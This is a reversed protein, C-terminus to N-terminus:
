CASSPRLGSITQGLAAVQASLRQETAARENHLRHEGATREAHLRREVAAAESQLRLEVDHLHQVLVTAESQLRQEMDHLHQVLAAAQQEIQDRIEAHHSAQREQLSQLAALAGVAFDSKGVATRVRWEFRYLFPLALPRALRLGRRGVDQVLRSFRTGAPAAAVVPEAVPPPVDAPATALSLAEELAQRRLGGQVARLLGPEAPFGSQM